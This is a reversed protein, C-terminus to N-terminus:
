GRLLTRRLPRHFEPKQGAERQVTAVTAPIFLFQSGPALAVDNRQTLMDPATGAFVHFGVANAPKKRASVTMIRGDPVSLSSPASAEGVGGSANVWAVAAYYMGGTQPGNVIDLVPPTAKRVPEAVLPMGGALFVEYADRSLRAYEDWRVRYREALDSFYAERYVLALAQMQEWTRLAANVVVQEMRVGPTRDLWIQLDSALTDHALALRATVDIGHNAATELLGGDLRALDGATSVPGDVFLAM